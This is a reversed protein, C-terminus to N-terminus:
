PLAVLKGSKLLQLKTGVKIYFGYLYLEGPNVPIIVGNEESAVIDALREAMPRNPDSAVEIDNPNATPMQEALFVLHGYQDYLAIQVGQRLSAAFFSNTYPIRKIIVDDSTPELGSNVTSVAFHIYYRRETGDAATCIIRCTDGAAATGISPDEAYQSRPIATISPPVDGDKLLYTYFTIEPDFGKLLVDDLLIAELACDADKGITQRITYTQETEEDQAVITIMIVGEANVVLTAQALTDSLLYSISDATFFDTTDSGFPHVYVYDTVLRNFNALPQEGLSIGKLFADNNKTFRFTITYEAEDEGNPAIVPITVKLDGSELTDMKFTDPVFQLSDSLVYSIAPITDEGYQLKVTYDYETSVFGYLFEPHGEVRISQLQTIDSLQRNFILTYTMQTLVDEALVDIVITDGHISIDYTQANEKKVVTVAPLTSRSDIDLRYIQKQSDFGVMPKGTLMIMNLSADSSTEVLYHITYFRMAGSPATVSIIHKYGLSKGSLSDPAQSIMVTQLTDAALYEIAPLAGNLENAYDASLTITYEEKRPSFGSIPKTDLYIMQLTDANSKEITYDFIYTNSKGSEATVIVRRKLRNVEELLTDMKITQWEDAEAPELKPFAATGVPLSIDYNFERPSFDHRVGNKTYCLTDGDAYMMLLTDADSRTLHFVIMYTNPRTETDEAQVKIVAQLKAANYDTAAVTQSAEGKQGAVEPMTHVGVPLNVEYYYYSPDFDALSDGDLFIMSLDANKSKPVAFSLTYDNPTGDVAKVTIVIEMNQKNIEVQQGDMKLQASVEPLVTSGAPLNITYNHQMPEFKLASNLSRQFDVLEVMQGDQELLINALTADSSQAQVYINVFYDSTTTGDEAVVHVTRNNGNKQVTVTQFRDDAAYQIDINETNLEISYYHRGQEFGELAVGNVMIGTLNACHSPEALITVSYEQNDDGKENTVTILTPDLEGIAGNTMVISQGQHGAVYTISPMVLAETKVAPTPLTVTYATTAPNFNSIIEGNLYIGALTKNEDKPNDVRLKYTKTASGNEATVTIAYTVGNNEYTPVVEIEQLAEAAVPQIYISDAAYIPTTTYDLSTAVFESYDVGDVLINRLQANASPTTPYTWTYTHNAETGYVQWEMKAPTQVFVVSDQDKDRTFLLTDQIGLRAKTCALTEGGLEQVPNGTVEFQSIKGYTKVTPNIRNVTYTKTTKGDEATVILKAGNATYELDIFQYIGDKKEYEIEPMKAATISFVNNTADVTQIEGECTFSELEADSSKVERFVYVTTKSTGNEASVKVTIKKNNKAIEFLQHPSAPEINFDPLKKTGYPLNIYTTDGKETTPYGGFTATYDLSTVPERHFVVTYLTSDRLDDYANEGYNIVAAKLDGNVWEGNNLWKIVQMQDHVAGTFKMSPTGTIVENADLNYTFVNNSPTLEKGNVVAKTLTSNYTLHMNQLILDGSITGNLSGYDNCNEKGSSNLTANLKNTVTSPYQLTIVGPLDENKKSYDGKYTSEKYTSGDSLTIWIKWENLDNAQMCNYTFTFQEPTNRFTVGLTADKGVSTTASTYTLGGKAFNASISGLTMMGPVSCRIAGQRMTSLIVGNEGYRGVEKGAYFPIPYGAFTMDPNGDTVDTYVKWDNSPKLAGNHATVVWNGRFDFPDKDNEYYWCVSYTKGGATTLIIQKKKADINSNTATANNYDTGVFDTKVPQATVNVIYNYVDPNFNKITAGNFKLDKLKGITDAEMEPIVNYEVDNEDERNAIAVLKAGRRIGGNYFLVAQDTYNKEYSTVDFSKTGFPVIVKNDGTKPNDISGNHASGNKDVYSYNIKKILNEGEPIAVTYSISYTRTAEGSESTVIIKTEGTIPAEVYRIFQGAEAKYTVSYPEVTGFPVDFHYTMTDVSHEHGNIFLKALKTNNSKEVPFAITYDAETGDQAEVHISTTGNPNCMYTTITQNDLQGIPFVNPVVTADHALTVTYSHVEPDFGALKKGGVLIAKLLANSSQNRAYTIIYTNTAGSEAVVVVHQENENANYSMVRQGASATVQIDPLEAGEDLNFPGYNNTTKVFDLHQGGPLTVLEINELLANSNKVVTYQVTYDTADGNEAVVHFNWKGDSVQGFTVIQSEEGKEYSLTPYSSGAPLEYTYDKKDAAWDALQVGDAKISALATNNTTQRTFAVYYSATTGQVDSVHLWCTDAVWMTVITQSPDSPEGTVTPHVKTFTATYNDVTPQFDALATGDILINALQVSAAPVPTFTITYTNAAGQEPAVLIVAKGAAVPTTITVQQGPAKDVTVKPCTTGALMVTYNMHQPDFGALEVGDLYIMDLFANASLQIIFNIRYERKAGSQATVTIIQTTGELVSLVRQTEEAKTFTVAPITSVGEPLTVNYELTEADFGELNNGDVRIMSLATNSSTAVSFHIIYTRSAGSQPRVTLRYDGNIGGSRPTVSQLNEDQKEFTVEPLETTGQPLNYSYENVEPDFGALEVGGVKISKLTNDTYADVSFAILYITTNGNGATVTIRTTGNVTGKNIIVNQFEDHQVAEIEPLETTGIELKYSYNTVDPDFGELAVGGIMIGNLVSIESKETSFVLKYVSQDGNGATVTIRTTGDIGGEVINVNQYEDGKTYTIEPLAATGLPLRVYYTLNTPDFSSIPEGDLMIAGLYSYSSAELKFTLKYTKANSNGPTTVKILAQGGDLNAVTPLTYEITQEGAPYKSVAEITPVVSTGVPLSVKYNAQSPTFGPVSKGNVLINQLTNDALQGVKFVLTYTAKTTGDAATVVVTATGTTSTAQTIAITQKDEQKDATVVPADTSGYPLEVNYAYKTASFSSLPEGNVSIGAAKANTSAARQFQIKYVTTSKGDESKVTITTPTNELDGKVVTIESGSLKRGPFTVTKGKTNTLSGCGRYAVIDPVATASEGLSYVQVDTSNPDFGKWQKDGVELKDIKSSYILEIDDVYLSNGEYLGSNSRFNPYNSASFILNCKKPANDNMYYIPVRINKWSGYTKRERWWGESVQGGATTTKCENGDLAIRIDSEEDTRTTSTCGNSKNKYTTGQATGTWAYYLIHFDEDATNNGTRKIWVSVSDPRHTFAYGGVTGATASSTNLGDLYQWATGLSFYAPSTETIGAAGVVQDQVMLCYGTRGTERNAFNFRFTMGLASQEVNSAHWYKPQIKGDFTSGSWDEFHPDPLQYDDAFAFFAASMLVLVSLLFKKMEFFTSNKINNNIEKRNEPEFLGM